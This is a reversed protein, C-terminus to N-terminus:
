SQRGSPPRDPDVESQRERSTTTCFIKEASVANRMWSPWAAVDKANRELTEQLLERPTKESM